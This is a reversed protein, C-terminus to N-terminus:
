ELFFISPTKVAAFAEVRQHSRAVVVHHKPAFQIEGGPKELRTIQGFGPIPVGDADIAQLNDVPPPQDNPL